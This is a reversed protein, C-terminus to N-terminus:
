FLPNSFVCFLFREGDFETLFIRTILPLGESWNDSQNDDMWKALKSQLVANSREILGQTQPHRPWGHIIKLGPWLVALQSVVQAVFERGNDSQLIVPPGFTTFIKYLFSVVHIAQKSPLAQTWSFKTFHCKAHAVWCLDGDARSRMDILDIKQM